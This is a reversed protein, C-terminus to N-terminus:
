IQLAASPQRVPPIITVKEQAESGRCVCAGRDHPSTLKVTNNACNSNAHGGGPVGEGRFPRVASFAERTTCVDIEGCLKCSAPRGWSRLAAGTVVAMYSPNANRADKAGAGPEM